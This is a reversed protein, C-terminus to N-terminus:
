FLICGLNFFFIVRHPFHCYYFNGNQLCSSTCIMTIILKYVNAKIWKLFRPKVGIQCTSLPESFYFPFLPINEHEGSSRSFFLIFFAECESVLFFFCCWFFKSILNYSSIKILHFWVTVLNINLKCLIWLIHDDWKGKLIMWPSHGPLFVIM